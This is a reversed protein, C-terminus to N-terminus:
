TRSWPVLLDPQMHRTPLRQRVSREQESTLEFVCSSGEDNADFIMQGGERSLGTSGITRSLLPLVLSLRDDDRGPELHASSDRKTSVLRRPRLDQLAAVAEACDPIEGLGSLDIEFWRLDQWLVRLVAECVASIELDTAGEVVTFARREMREM